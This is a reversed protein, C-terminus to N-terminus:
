DQVEIGQIFEFVMQIFPGYFGTVAVVAYIDEKPEGFINEVAVNSIHAVPGLGSTNLFAANYEDYRRNWTNILQAIATTNMGSSLLAQRFHTLYATRVSEAKEKPIILDCGMLTAHMCLFFLEWRFKMLEHGQLDALGLAEQTQDRTREMWESATSHLCKVLDDRTM